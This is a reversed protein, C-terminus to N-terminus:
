LIQSIGMQIKEARTWKFVHSKYLCSKSCYSVLANKGRVLHSQNKFRTFVENCVPCTMKLVKRQHGSQVVKKMNNQKRTLLQLNEISDNLKDGDIHDVHLSDIPVYGLYVSMLYRAYSMTKREKNHGILIVLRRPEKNTLVYGAKYTATFPHQLEIKAM